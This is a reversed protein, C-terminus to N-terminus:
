TQIFGDTQRQLVLAHDPGYTMAKHDQQKGGSYLIINQKKLLASTTKLFSRYLAISSLPFGVPLSWATQNCATSYKTKLSPSM